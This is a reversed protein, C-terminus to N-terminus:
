CRWKTGILDLVLFLSFCLAVQLSNAKWIWKWLSKLCYPNINLKLKKNRHVPVKNLVAEDATGWIGNHRLISPDFGTGYPVTSYPVTGNSGTTCCRPHSSGTNNPRYWYWLGQTGIRIRCYKHNRDWSFGSRCVSTSVAHTSFQEPM